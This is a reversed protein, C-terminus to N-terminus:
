NAQFRDFIFEGSRALENTSVRHDCGYTKRAKHKIKLKEVVRLLTNRKYTYMHIGNLYISTSICMYVYM